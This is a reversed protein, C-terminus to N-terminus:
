SRPLIMHVRVVTGSKPGSSIEVLDTLRKVLWLGAGGISGPAPRRGAAAGEEILGRDRVECIIRHEDRWMRLTGTGGGYLISNCALENVAFALDAARASPLGGAAARAAVAHRLDYLDDRGFGSSYLMDLTEAIPVSRQGDQAASLEQELEAYSM